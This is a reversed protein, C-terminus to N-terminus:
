RGFLAGVVALLVTVQLGVLWVFGRSLKADLEVRAADIRREVADFRRDVGDFRRNMDERFDAMARLQCDMGAELHAVREDLNLMADEPLLM